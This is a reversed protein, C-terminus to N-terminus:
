FILVLIMVSMALGIVFGLATLLVEGVSIKQKPQAAQSEDETDHLTTSSGSISFRSRLWLWIILAIILLFGIGFGILFAKGLKKSKTPDNRMKKIAAKLQKKITKLSAKKSKGSATTPRTPQTTINNDNVKQTSVVCASALLNNQFCTSGLLLLM